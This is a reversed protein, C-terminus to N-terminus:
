NWILGDNAVSMCVVSHLKHNVVQIVSSICITYRRHALKLKGFTYSRKSKSENQSNYGIQREDATASLWRRLFLIALQKAFCRLLYITSDRTYNCFWNLNVDNNKSNTHTHTTQSQPCDRWKTQKMEIRSNDSKAMVCISASKRWEASQARIAYRTLYMYSMRAIIQPECLWWQCYKIPRMAPQKEHTCLCFFLFADMMRLIRNLHRSTKLAGTPHLVM